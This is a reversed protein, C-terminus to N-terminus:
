LKDRASRRQEGTERRLRGWFGTEMGCLRHAARWLIVNRLVISFAAAAAAGTAGYHPALLLALAVNCALALAFAVTNHKEHDSMNLLTTNSGFACNVFQAVVLLSMAPWAPRYDAGFAFDLFAGGGVLFFVSAPFAFLASLRSGRILASQVAAFDGDHWNKAVGPGLAMNAAIYGMATVLAAQSAVKYFSAEVNAATAGLVLLGAQQEILVMASTLGMAVVASKWKPVAFRADPRKAIGRLLRHLVIGGAIWALVAATSNALMATFPTLGEAGIAAPVFALAAIGALMLLPQVLQNVVESAVVRDLGRILGSRVARLPLVLVLVSGAMFLASEDKPVIGLPLIALVFILALMAGGILLTLRHAWRSLDHIRWPARNARARSVERILLSPIGFQGPIAALTLVALVVSYRGFGEPKLLRALIISLALAILTNAVRVLFTGGAARVLRGSFLGRVLKPIPM